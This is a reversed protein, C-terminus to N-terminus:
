SLMGERTAPHSIKNSSLRFQLSLKWWCNHKWNPSLLLKINFDSLYIPPHPHILIVFAPHKILFDAALSVFISNLFLIRDTHMWSRSATHRPMHIYMLTCLQVWLTLTERVARASELMANKTVNGCALWRQLGTWWTREVLDTFMLIGGERRQWSRGHSSLCCHLHLGYVFLRCLGARGPRAAQWGASLHARCQGLHVPMTTHLRQSVVVLLFATKAHLVTESIVNMIKLFICNQTNASAGRLM